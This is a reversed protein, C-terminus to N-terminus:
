KLFVYAKDDLSVLVICIHKPHSGSPSWALKLAHQFGWNSNLRFIGEKSARLDSFEASPLKLATCNQQKIMWLTEM